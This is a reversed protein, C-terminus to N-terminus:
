SGGPILRLRPTVPTSRERAAREVEEVLDELPGWKEIAPHEAAAPDEAVFVLGPRSTLAAIRPGLEDWQEDAADLVLVDPEQLRLARELRWPRVASDIKM